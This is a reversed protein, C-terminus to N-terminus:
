VWLFARGFEFKSPSKENLVKLFYHYYGNELAMKKEQVV